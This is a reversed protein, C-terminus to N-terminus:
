MKENVKDDKISIEESEGSNDVIKLPEISFIDEKYIPLKNALTGIQKQLELIQTHVNNFADVYQLVKNQAMAIRQEKEEFKTKIEDEAKKKSYLAEVRADTTIKEASQRADTVISDAKQKAESVVSGADTKAKSVMDEAEKKAKSMIDVVLDYSGEYNSLKKKLEAITREYREAEDASVGATKGERLESVEAKLREVERNLSKNEKKLEESEKQILELEETGPAEINGIETKLESLQNMLVEIYEDVEAKRYGGFITSSFRGM